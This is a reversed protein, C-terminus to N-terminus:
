TVVFVSHQSYAGQVQILICWLATKWQYLDSKLKKGLARNHQQFILSSSQQPQSCKNLQHNQINSMMKLHVWLAKLFNACYRWHCCCAVTVITSAKAVKPPAVSIPDNRIKDHQGLHGICTHYHSDHTTLRLCKVKFDDGIYMLRLHLNLM